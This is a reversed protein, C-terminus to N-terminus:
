ETASAPNRIIEKAADFDEERVFLSAGRVIGIAGPIPDSHVVSKIGAARLLAAAMEVEVESTISRFVLVLNVDKPAM